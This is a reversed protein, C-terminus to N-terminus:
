SCLAGDGRRRTNTAHRLLFGVVITLLFFTSPEAVSSSSDDITVLAQYQGPGALPDDFRLTLTYDNAASPLSDITLSSRGQEISLSVAVDHLPLVPNLGTFQASSQEGAQMTGFTNTVFVPSPWTPFWNYGSLVSTGDLTATIITPDDHFVGGMDPGYYQGPVEAMLNHWQLTNARILLLATGDILVSIDYTITGAHASGGWFASIALALRLMSRKIWM